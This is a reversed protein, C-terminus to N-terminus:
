RPGTRRRQQQECIRRLHLQLRARAHQDRGELVRRAEDRQAALGVRVGPGVDLPELVAGRDHYRGAVYQRDALVARGVAGLDLGLDAELRDLALVGPEVAAPRGVADALAARGVVPEVDLTLICEEGEEKRDM